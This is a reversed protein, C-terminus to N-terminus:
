WAAQRLVRLGHTNVFLWCGPASGIPRCAPRALAAAIAAAVQEAAVEPPHSNPNAGGARGTGVRAGTLDAVLARTTTGGADVGVLYGETNAVAM